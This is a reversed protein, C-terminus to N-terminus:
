ACVLAFGRRAPDGRRPCVLSPLRARNIPSDLGGRWIRVPDRLDSPMRIFWFQIAWQQSAAVLDPLKGVRFFCWAALMALLTAPLLFWRRRYVEGRLLADLGISTLALIALSGVFVLRNHSMMRVGPLRLLNVIGPVNLSWSLGLFILLSCFLFFSRRRRSSWALPAILLTAPVGSYIAAASEIQNGAALRKNGASM